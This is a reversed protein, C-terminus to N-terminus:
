DHWLRFGQTHLIDDSEKDVPIVMIESSIFEMMLYHVVSFFAENTNDKEVKGRPIECFLDIDKEAISLPEHGWSYQRHTEPNTKDQMWNDQEVHYILYVIKTM